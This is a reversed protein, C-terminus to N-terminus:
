RVQRLTNAGKCTVYLNVSQSDMVIGFPYTFTAENADGDINDAKGNGALTSVLGSSTCARIRNNWTDTIYIVGSIPHITLSNAGYFMADTGQGDAFGSGTQGALITTTGGDKSITLLQYYTAVYGLSGSPPFVISNPYSIGSAM